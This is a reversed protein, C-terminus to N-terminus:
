PASSDLDGHMPDEPPETEHVDVDVNVELGKRVSATVVCFDEFVELCDDISTGADPTDVDITVDLQGIRLRNDENRVLTGEARASVGDLTVDSDRLCFVLSASLCNAISAGLVRAANPGENEGLPPPEDVTFGEYPEGPFSVEFAYGDSREVEVEFTDSMPQVGGKTM